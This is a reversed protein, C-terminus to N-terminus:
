ANAERGADGHPLVVVEAVERASPFLTRIALWGVAAGVLEAGIFPGVSGPSIGAFSNSFERAITVAPNAFSMSSTFFYAGMIYAGVAFPVAAVQKSRAVGFIVLLLGLTAVAEGLWPGGGFRRHTSISIASLSFMVNAVVVGTVAGLVQAAIYCPLEVVPLGGFAADVVSVLPNLHGGSVPGVMLIIAVLATGTAAADELLELGPQGPSLRQAAIGSGVIAVLLFATGIFEALSRRILPMAM